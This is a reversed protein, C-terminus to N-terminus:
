FVFSLTYSLVHVSYRHLLPEMFSSGAGGSGLLGPIPVAQEAALDRERFREHTYELRQSINKWLPLKVSAVWQQFRDRTDPYDEATTVLFGALSSDGLAITRTRSQSLSLGWYLDAVVRDRFVSANVGGGVTHVRDRLNSEWDNNASDNGPGTVSGDLRERSRQAYRFREYSYDGFVTISPTVVYAADVSVAENLDYLLGYSSQGYFSRDVTFSAAFTARETPTAEVLVEGYDRSRRAQDYRRLGALQPLQLFGPGDPYSENPAEPDYNRPDRLSHQFSAQVLVGSKTALDWSGGVTHENSESVERYERNWGEWEYFVKASYPQDPEWIWDLTVNQKRYGYPLSRRARPTFVTSTPLELDYRVYNTIGLSPTENNLDYSRYRANFAFHKGAKGTLLYNMMLTRRRGDLSPAPLAPFGPQEELASNSTYPLFPENQRMWGPALTAVIRVSHPFDVAGAFQFTQASNDPPLAKRGRAPSLSDSSDQYPNTWELASASDNFLSTHSEVRALWNPQAAEASLNLSDTLFETLEPLEIATFEFNAGAPRAGSRKERSYDARLNWAAVPTVTAIVTATSRKSVLNVRPSGALLRANVALNLEGPGTRTFHNPGNTSLTHLIRDWAATIKLRGPLGATLLTHQDLEVTNQSRLQFYFGGGPTESCSTFKRLYPGRRFDRYELFKASQRDGTIQRVGIEMSTTPRTIQYPNDAPVPARPAIVLYPNEEMGPCPQTQGWLVGSGIWLASWLRLRVCARMAKDRRTAIAIDGERSSVTFGFERLITRGM